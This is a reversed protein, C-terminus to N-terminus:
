IKGNQDSHDTEVTYLMEPHKSAQMIKCCQYNHTTMTAAIELSKNNKSNSNKNKFLNLIWNIQCKYDHLPM